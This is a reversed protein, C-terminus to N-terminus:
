KKDCTTKGRWHPLGADSIAKAIVLNGARGAANEKKIESTCERRAKEAAERAEELLDEFWPLNRKAYAIFRQQEREYSM